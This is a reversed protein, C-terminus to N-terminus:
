LNSASDRAVHSFFRFTRFSAAFFGGIRLSRSAVHVNM